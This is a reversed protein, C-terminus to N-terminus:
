RRSTAETMVWPLKKLAEFRVLIKRWTVMIPKAERPMHMTMMVPLISREMMPLTLMVVTMVATSITLSTGVGSIMSM